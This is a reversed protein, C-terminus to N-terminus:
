TEQEEYEVIKPEVGSHHGVQLRPSLGDPDYVLGNQQSKWIRFLPLVRPQSHGVGSLTPSAIRTTNSRLREALEM